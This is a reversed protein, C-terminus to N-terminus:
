SWFNNLLSILDKNLDKNEKSINKLLWQVNKGSDTVSSRFTPVNLKSKRLLQNIKDVKEKIKM